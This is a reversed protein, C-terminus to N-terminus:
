GWPVCGQDAGPAWRHHMAMNSWGGLDDGIIQARTHRSGSISGGVAVHLPKWGQAHVLGSSLSHRWRCLICRCMYWWM